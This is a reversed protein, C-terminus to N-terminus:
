ATSHEVGILSCVFRNSHLLAGFVDNEAPVDNLVFFLGYHCL